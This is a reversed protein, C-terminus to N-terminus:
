VTATSNLAALKSTRRLEQQAARFALAAPDEYVEEVQEVTVPVAPVTGPSVPAAAPPQPVPLAQPDPVMQEDKAKGPRALIETVILLAIPPWAAVGISLPDGHHVLTSAINAVLSITAGFWFAVRAWTRPHRHQAKDEAMALSAIVLLGDVSLPLTSALVDTQHGLLAVDRMHEYSNVAAVGAVVLFSTGFAIRRGITRATIYNM